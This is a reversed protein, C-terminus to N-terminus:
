RQWASGKEKCIVQDTKCPIEAEESVMGAEIVHIDYEVRGVRSQEGLDVQIFLEHLGVQM